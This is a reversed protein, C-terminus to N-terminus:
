RVVIKETTGDSYRVINIGKRPANLRQGKIDYRSVEVKNIDNKTSVIGTTPDRKFISSSDGAMQVKMSCRPERPCMCHPMPMLVIEFIILKM